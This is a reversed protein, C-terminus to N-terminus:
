GDATATLEVLTGLAYDETNDAVSTDIGAPNSTVTGNGPDALPMGKPTITLTKTEGQASVHSVMFLSFAAILIMWLGIISVGKLKRCM